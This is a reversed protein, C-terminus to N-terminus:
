LKKEYWETRLYKKFGASEYLAIAAQVEGDAMLEVIEVGKHKLYSLGATLANRGISQRRFDPDVGLMHIEGKLEERVSHDLAHIRTWCYAVPKDRLYVLIINEPTCSSLNIRYAIEERTNPNFGWTDAFSRNQISTLVEEEGPQLNRYNYKGPKLDQLQISTLDLKYGIFQRFYNFGVGLLLNKAAPNNEPICVQAAKVGAGKAYDFTHGLLDTAIGKRRCSPHVLGDLLVRGIGPEMFASVYGILCQAEEALFLDKEPHYSPHGLEEALLKKSVRYGPQDQKVSEIYLRAYNTFDSARYNRITWVKEVM